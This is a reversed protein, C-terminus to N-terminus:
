FARFPNPNGVDFTPAEAPVSPEGSTVPETSTSLNLGTLDVETKVLRQFKPNSLIDVSLGTGGVEGDRRIDNLMAETPRNLNNVSNLYNFITKRYSVLVASFVILASIFTYALFKFVKKM